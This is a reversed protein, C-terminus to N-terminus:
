PALLEASLVRARASAEVAFQRCLGTYRSPDLLEDITDGAIRDSVRSDEALLARFGRGTVAAEQSAEYIVDHAQQRGIQKGLELMLPEAMILGGSLDLNQRMREPFLRLGQVLVVLRQLIDGTLSCSESLARTMMQTTFTDAEHEAQMAELALPVYARLEASAALMDECLKPNRKQPMTSSGVTGEPVPEEAEGFEQKMLTYVERAVKACTSALLALITVYEAEHDSITRAPLTMPRLGLKSAMRRQVELGVEGLSALSGVGGGLMAVFVRDECGRLREVHRCLEDIWVAAKFGFTIPLAHQGHTRGPLLMDSSREALDALAALASGLLRLIIAHARRVRILQGTQTINPTTAGWHVSGGADGECIRSLEWVLPVLQHGTRQLGARIADMSLLELRAKRSIEAAAAQPIVGLEAEAEALAAEVDLWSQLRAAETFLARIGPEPLRLSTPQEQMVM